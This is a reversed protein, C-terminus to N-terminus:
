EHSLSLVKEMRYDDMIFGNGIDQVIPEAITFGIKEYMRITVVNNKNVTLVISQLGREAALNEVFQVAQKGYGKGREEARIYLKSLLLSKEKPLLAFYGIYQGVANKILYYIFKEVAIQDSIARKSQFKELMYEVQPRGIMPTFYEHWIENALSEVIGILNETSVEVIECRGM